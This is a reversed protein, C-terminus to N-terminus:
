PRKWLTRLHWATQSFDPCSGTTGGALGGWSCIINCDSDFLVSPIDCCGGAVLYVHRGNYKYEDISEPLIQATNNKAAQIKKEICDPISGGGSKRCNSQSLLLVCLIIFIGYKRMIFNPLTSM